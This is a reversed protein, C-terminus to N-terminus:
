FEGLADELSLNEGAKPVRFVALNEKGYMGEAANYLADRDSSQGVFIGKFYAVYTGEYNKLNGDHFEGRFFFSNAAKEGKPKFREFATEGLVFNTNLKRQLALDSMHFAIQIDPRIEADPM